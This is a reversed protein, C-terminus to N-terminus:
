ADPGVAVPSGGRQAVRKIGKVVDSETKQAGVQNTRDDSLAQARAAQAREIGKADRVAKELQARVLGDFKDLEGSLCQAVSAANSAVDAIADFYENFEGNDVLDRIRDMGRSELLNKVNTIAGEINGPDYTAAVAIISSLTAGVADLTDSLDSLFGIIENDVRVVSARVRRISESLEDRFDRVGDLGIASLASVMSGFAGQNPDNDIRTQLSTDDRCLLERLWLFDVQLRRAEEALRFDDSVSITEIREIRLDVQDRLVQLLKRKVGVLGPAIQSRFGSEYNLTNDISTLLTEYVDSLSELGAIIDNLARIIDGFSNNPIAQSSLNLLDACVADVTAQPSILSGDESIIADIDLRLTKLDSLIDEKLSRNRDDFAKRNADINIIATRFDSIAEKVDVGINLAQSALSGFRRVISTVMTFVAGPNALILLDTAGKVENLDVVRANGSQESVTNAFTAAALVGSALSQGARQLDPRDAETFTPGVLNSDVLNCVAGVVQRLDDRLGLIEDVRFFSDNLRDIRSFCEQSLEAM